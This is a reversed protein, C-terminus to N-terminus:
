RFSLFTDANTVKLGRPWVAKVRECATSFHQHLHQHLRTSKQEVLLSCCPNQPRILLVGGETKLAYWGIPDDDSFLQLALSRSRRSIRASRGHRRWLRLPVVGM